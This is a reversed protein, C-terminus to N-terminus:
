DLGLAQIQRRLEDTLEDVAEPTSTDAAPRLYPQAAINHGPWGYEQVGAYVVSGGGAQVSAFKGGRSAVISSSLRGSRVPALTRARAAVAAGIADFASPMDNAARGFRALRVLVDDVGTVEVSV